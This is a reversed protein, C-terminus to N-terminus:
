VDGETLISIIEEKAAAHRLKSVNQEDQCALAIASLIELHEDNKGAIGILIYATNGDGFDVGEPYQLVVIGSKKIYGIYQSTGHPISIGNGIYTTVEIERKKMGEIYEPDVYGNDALLRGTREIAEYKGEAAINLLINGENLILKNM